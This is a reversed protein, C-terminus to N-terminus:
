INLSSFWQLESHNWVYLVFVNIMAFHNVNDGKLYYKGAVTIVLITIIILIIIIIITIIIIIIIMIIIIIIIM